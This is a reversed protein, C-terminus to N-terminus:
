NFYQGLQNRGRIFPNIMIMTSGPLKLRSFRVSRPVVTTQQQRNNVLNTQSFYKDVWKIKGKINTVGSLCVKLSNM